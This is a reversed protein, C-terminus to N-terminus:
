RPHIPAAAGRRRVAHAGGGAPTPTRVNRERWGSSTELLAVNLLGLAIAPFKILLFPNGLYETANTVILCAGSAAAVVFGARSLPVAPTAISALPVRRWLGLLRLDLLLLTGFGAGLTLAGCLPWFGVAMIALFPLAIPSVGGGGGGGGALARGREYAQMQLFTGGSSGSGSQGASFAASEGAAAAEQRTRYQDMTDM